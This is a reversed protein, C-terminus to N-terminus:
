LRPLSHIARMAVAFFLSLVFPALTLAGEALMQRSFKPFRTAHFVLQAGTESM